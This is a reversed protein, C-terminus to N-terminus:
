IRTCEFDMVDQTQEDKEFCGHFVGSKSTILAGSKWDIFVLDGTLISGDTNGKTVKYVKDTELNM